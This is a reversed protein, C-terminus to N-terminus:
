VGGKAALAADIRVLLGRQFHIRDPKYGTGCRQEMDALVEAVDDRAETLLVLLSENEAALADYMEPLTKMESRGNAALAAALATYADIYLGPAAEEAHALALRAKVGASYLAENEARLKANEAALDDYLEPLTKM